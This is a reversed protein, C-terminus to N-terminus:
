SSEAQQETEVKKADAIDTTEVVESVDTKSVARSRSEKEHGKVGPIKLALRHAASNLEVVEFEKEDGIKAWDNINALPTNSLMSIHALGHVTETIEVVVGFPQVKIIKGRVTKGVALEKELGKWPDDVLRKVSLFLKAGSIEIIQARVTDGVKVEDQPHNIRKWTLESIHILGEVGDFSLFAGFTTLAGITGEVIQGVAYKELTKKKSDEWVAKESVIVKEEKQDLDIVRVQMDMGVFSKLKDLIKQKDGGQVRPYNDPSLQSVPLFARISAITMMLGGKNADLVKGSIIEGSAVLRELEGWTKKYGAERFSLELEGNENELELVTAYVEDGIKIQAYSPSENYMGAGRVVGVAVGDIDIRVENRSAFIVKGVIVDGVKPFKMFQKDAILEEFETSTTSTQSSMYVYIILVM